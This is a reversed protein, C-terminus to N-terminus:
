KLRRTFSEILKDLVFSQDDESLFTSCPLCVSSEYINRAVIIDHEPCKKYAMQDNLPRWTHRAEIRHTLLENILESPSVDFIRRDWKLIPMWFSSRFEDTEWIISLGNMGKLGSRYISAIHRKKNVYESLASAQALGFAANINPMRYNFGVEEHMFSSTASKSQNALYRARDAVEESNTLIMGGGGTTIIKNGNFSISFFKSNAGIRQGRYESGLAEAGDEVIPINYKQSLANLDDGGAVHGYVHVPLIAGVRRQLIRDKLIGNELYCQTDFYKNLKVNCLCMTSADIDIFLPVAGTYLISNVTAAFSFPSTIVLDGPQLNCQLLCLHLASTGSNTAVAYKAGVFEAIKREFKEIDPGVAINSARVARIIANEERGTVNPMSNPIFNQM